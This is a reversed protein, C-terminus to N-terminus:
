PLRPGSIRRPTGGHFVLDSLFVELGPRVPETSRMLEQAQILAGLTVLTAAAIFPNMASLM